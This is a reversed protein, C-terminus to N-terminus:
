FRAKTQSISQVTLRLLPPEAIWRYNTKIRANIEVWVLKFLLYLFLKRKSSRSRNKTKFVHTKHNCGWTVYRAHYRADIGALLWCVFVLFGVYTNHVTISGVIWSLFKSTSFPVCSNLRYFLLVLKGECNQLEWFVSILCQYNRHSKKVM